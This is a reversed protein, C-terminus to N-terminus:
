GIRIGGRGLLAPGKFVVFDSPTTQAVLDGQPDIVNTTVHCVRTMIGLAGPETREEFGFLVLEDSKRVLDYGGIVKQRRTWGAPAAKPFNDFITGPGTGAQTFLCGNFIFDHQPGVREAVLWYPTVDPEGIIFMDVINSGIM